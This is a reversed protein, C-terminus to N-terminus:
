AGRLLARVQPSVIDDITATEWSHAAPRPAPRPRGPYDVPTPYPTEAGGVFHRARYHWRLERLVGLQEAGIKDGLAWGATAAYHLATGPPAATM